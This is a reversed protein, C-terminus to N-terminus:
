YKADGAKADEAKVKEVTIDSLAKRYAKEYSLGTGM